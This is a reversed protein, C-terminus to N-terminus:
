GADLGVVFLGRRQYAKIVQNLNSALAVPIRAAAVAPTKCAPPIHISPYPILPHIPLSSTRPSLLRPLCLAEGAGADGHGMRDAVGLTLRVVSPLLGWSSMLGCSHGPLALTFIWFLSLLSSPHTATQDHSCFHLLSLPHLFCSSSQTVPRRFPSVSFLRPSILLFLFLFYFTASLSSHLPFLCHQAM